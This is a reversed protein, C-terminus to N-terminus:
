RLEELIGVPADTEDGNKDPKGVLIVNGLIWGDPTLLRRGIRLLREKAFRTATPNVTLDLADADENVIMDCDGLPVVEIFGGVERQMSGLDPLSAVKVSGNTRIIISMM